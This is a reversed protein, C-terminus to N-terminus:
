KKTGGSTKTIQIFKTIFSGLLLGLVFAISMLVILPLTTTGFIYDFSVRDTNLISLIVILIIAIGFFIQWFLKALM